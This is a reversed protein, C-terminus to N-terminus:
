KAKNLRLQSVHPRWQTMPSRKNHCMIELQPGRAFYNPHAPKNSWLIHSRLDRVLAQVQMGQRPLCIRFWQTVLFTRQKTKISTYTLYATNVIIRLLQAKKKNTQKYNRTKIWQELYSQGTNNIRQIYKSCMVWPLIEYNKQPHKFFIISSKTYM